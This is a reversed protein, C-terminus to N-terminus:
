LTMIWDDADRKQVNALYDKYDMILREQFEQIHKQRTARITPAYTQEEIFGNDTHKWAKAEFCFTLMTLIATYAPTHDNLPGYMVILYELIAAYRDTEKVLKEFDKKSSHTGYSVYDERFRENWLVNYHNLLIDVINKRLTAIAGNFAREFYTMADNVQELWILVDMGSPQHYENEDNVLSVRASLTTSFVDLFAARLESHLEEPAVELCQAFCSVVEYHRFRPMFDDHPYLAISMGNLYWGEWSTPDFRIVAAAYFEALSYREAAFADRAKIYQTALRKQLGGLHTPNQIHVHM